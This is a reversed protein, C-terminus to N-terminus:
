KMKKVIQKRKMILLICFSLCGCIILGIVAGANGLLYGGVAPGLLTAIAEAAEISTHAKLLNERGAVKPIMVSFATSSVLYIVQMVIMIATVLWLHVEEFTLIFALIFLGIGYLVRFFATTKLKHKKEVWTSVPVVFILGTFAQALSVVSTALPSQTITLILLPIIVQRFKGNLLTILEWVWLSAFNKNILYSRM